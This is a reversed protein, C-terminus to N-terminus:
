ALARLQVFFWVLGMLVPQHLLYVMLSHRGPWALWRWARAPTGGGRLREFLGAGDALRALALGALAPALWPLVPVFDMAPRVQTALGSWYLWPQNFAPDQLYEPAMWVAVAALLTVVAPLRLFLVGVLGSVAICHLIGFYVFVQPMAILTAASVLAAAAGVVALRRWFARWRLGQAHALWLSIGSLFIFSGAICEAFLRWPPSAITGGAILGFMELDYTFHFVAMLLLAASRALDLAIIRRM